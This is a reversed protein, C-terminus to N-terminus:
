PGVKPPGNLKFHGPQLVQFIGEPDYKRATDILKAKNTAGYSAIVDQYESAYNMYLYDVDLNRARAREGIRKLITDASRMVALDDKENTWRYSLQFLLYPGGNLDLGLANGGKVKSNELFGKTIVQYICSPILGSVRSIKKTEKDFIDAIENSLALDLKYTATWFSDRNGHPNVSNIETTIQSLPKAKTDSSLWTMREFEQFIRPTRTVPDAYEMSVATVSIGVAINIAYILAAKPDQPSNYGFDVMAKLGAAQQANTNLGYKQGGWM